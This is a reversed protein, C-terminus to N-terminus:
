FFEVCGVFDLLDNRFSVNLDTGHVCAYYALLKAVMNRFQRLRVNSDSIKRLVYEHLLNYVESILIELLIKRFTM